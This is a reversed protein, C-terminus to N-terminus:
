KKIREYIRDAALAAMVCVLPLVGFKYTPGAELAWILGIWFFPCLKLFIPVGKWFMAVIMLIFIAMYMGNYILDINVSYASIRWDNTGDAVIVGMKM